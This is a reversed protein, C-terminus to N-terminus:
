GQAHLARLDEEWRKIKRQANQRQAASMSNHVQAAFGCNYDQVKQQLSRYAERPSQDAHQAILRLAAQAQTNLQAPAAGSAKAAQLSRLTQLGEQQLARREALWLAPDYPSARVLEVIRDHQADEISGYLMDVREEVRKVQAKERDRPKDSLFQESFKRNNKEFRKQLHTLQEPTLSLAVETLAPLAQEFAQHARTKGEDMWRCVAQPTLSPQQVDTQAKAMLEAYAPLQQRRNDRFFQEILAKVRPSQEDTFDVYSDMWWYLLTPGQNYTLKLAVSCSALLM